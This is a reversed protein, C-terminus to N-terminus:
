GGCTGCIGVHLACVWMDPTGVYGWTGVLDRREYGILKVCIMLKIINAIYNFCLM